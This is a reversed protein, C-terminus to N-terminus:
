KHAGEMNWGVAEKKKSKSQLILFNSKLDEEQRLTKSIKSRYKLIHPNRKIYRAKCGNEGWDTYISM